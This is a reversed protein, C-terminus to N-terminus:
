SRNKLTTGLCKFVAADQHRSLLMYKAKEANIELGVEKGVDILTGANKWFSIHRM